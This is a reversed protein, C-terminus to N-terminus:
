LPVTMYFKVLKHTEPLCDKSDTISNMIDCVTSLKTVKSIPIASRKNYLKVYVIYNRIEVALQKLDTLNLISALENMIQESNFNEDKNAAM